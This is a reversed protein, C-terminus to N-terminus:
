CFGVILDLLVFMLTDAVTWFIVSVLHEALFSQLPVLKRVFVLVKFSINCLVVSIQLILVLSQNGLFSIM